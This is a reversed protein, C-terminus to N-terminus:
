KIAKAVPINKNSVNSYRKGAENSKNSKRYM